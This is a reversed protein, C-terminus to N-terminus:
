GTRGTRGQGPASCGRGPLLVRADIQGFLQLAGANLSAAGEYRCTSEPRAPQFQATPAVWRDGLPGREPMGARIGDVYVFGLVRAPFGAASCRPPTHRLLRLYRAPASSRTRPRRVV